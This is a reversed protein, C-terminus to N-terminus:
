YEGTAVAVGGFTKKRWKHASNARRRNESHFSAFADEKIEELEEDNYMRPDYYEYWARNSSRDFCPVYRKFGGRRMPLDVMSPLALPRLEFPLQPNHSNKADSLGVPLARGKTVLKLHKQYEASADEAWKPKAKPQQKKQKKQKKKKDAVSKKTTTTTTAASMDEEGGIQTHVLLFFSITEIKKKLTFYM